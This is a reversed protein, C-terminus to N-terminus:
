PTVGITPILFKPTRGSNWDKLQQYAMWWSGGSSRSDLVLSQYDPNDIWFQATDGYPNDFDLARSALPNDIEIIEHVVSASDIIRAANIIGFQHDYAIGDFYIMNGNADVKKDFTTQGYGGAVIASLV